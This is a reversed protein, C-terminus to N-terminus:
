KNNIHVLINDMRVSCKFTISFFKLEFYDYHLTTHPILVLKLKEEFFNIKKGTDITTILLHFLIRLLFYYYSIKKKTFDGKAM